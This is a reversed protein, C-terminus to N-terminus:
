KTQIYQHILQNNQEVIKQVENAKEELSDLKAQQEELDSEAKLLLQEQYALDKELKQALMMQQREYEEDSLNLGANPLHTWQSSIQYFSKHTSKPLHTMMQLYGYYYTDVFISVVEANIKAMQMNLLSYDDVAMIDRYKAIQENLDDFLGETFSNVILLDAPNIGHIWFLPLHFESVQIPTSQMTKLLKQAEREQLVIMTNMEEKYDAKDEKKKSNKWNKVYEEWDAQLSKSIDSLNDMAQTRSTLTDAVRLAAPMYTLHGILLILAVVAAVIGTGILWRKRTQFHAKSKLYGTLRKVQLDYYTNPAPALAQYNCLEEMGKPMEAPWVFGSLMIPIINKKHEMACMVERRVWDGEDECRDLANPSLVLIFDKCKSIVDLLQENFKGANMTEIDFFVRYGLAKLRTAFLNASEFADRRYSIFIDYTM